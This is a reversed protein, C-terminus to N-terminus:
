KGGPIILTQGVRIRSPDTLQNAAIIDAVKAGTKKAIRDLTDGREVTYSVGAKAPSADLPKVAAAGAGSASPGATAGAGTSASPGPVPAVRASSGSKAISDLAANTQRALKEMQRAVVELTEHKSAAIAANLDAIAANLQASTVADTSPAKLRARLEANQHELQEVRLALDGVRESLGRVDERLNALDVASVGQAAAVAAALAFALM